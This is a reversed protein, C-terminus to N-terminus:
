LVGPIILISESYAQDLYIDKFDHTYKLETPPFYFNNTGTIWTSFEIKFQM